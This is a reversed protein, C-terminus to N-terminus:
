TVLNCRVPLSPWAVLPIVDLQQEEGGMPARQCGAAHFHSYISNGEAKKSREKRGIRSCCCCRRSMFILGMLGLDGCGVGRDQGEGEIAEVVVNEGSMESSKSIVSVVESPAGTPRM